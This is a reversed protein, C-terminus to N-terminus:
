APLQADYGAIRAKLAARAKRSRTQRLAQAARTRHAKLAAITRPSVRPRTTKRTM